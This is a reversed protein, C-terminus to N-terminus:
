IEAGLDDLHCALILGGDAIEARDIQEVMHPFPPQVLRPQLAAHGNRHPHEVIDDVDIEVGDRFRATRVQPVARDTETSIPNWSASCANRIAIAESAATAKASVLM